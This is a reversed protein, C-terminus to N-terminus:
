DAVEEGTQHFPSKLHLWYSLPDPGAFDFHILGFSSGRDGQRIDRGAIVIGQVSRNQDAEKDRKFRDSVIPELPVISRARMDTVQDFTKLLHRASSGADAFV